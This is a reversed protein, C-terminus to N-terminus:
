VRERCSARGIKLYRGLIDAKDRLPLAPDPFPILRKGAEDYIASQFPEDTGRLVSALDMCRDATTPRPLHDVVDFMGDAVLCLYETGAFSLVDLDPREMNSPLSKSFDSTMLLARRRQRTMHIWFMKDVARVLRGLEDGNPLVTGQPFPSAPM